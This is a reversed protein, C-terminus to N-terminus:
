LIMMPTRSMMAIQASHRAWRAMVDSRNHGDQEFHGDYEEDDGDDDSVMVVVTLIMM